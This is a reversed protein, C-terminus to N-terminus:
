FIHLRAVAVEQIFLCILLLQCYALDGLHDLFLPCIWRIERIAKKGKEGHLENCTKDKLLPIDKCVEPSTESCEKDRHAHLLYFKELRLLAGTFYLIFALPLSSSHPTKHLRWLSTFLFHLAPTIPTPHPLPERQFLLLFYYSMSAVM